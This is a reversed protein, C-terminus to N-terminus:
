IGGKFFRFALQILLIITVTKLLLRIYLYNLKKAVRVALQAGVIAGSALSLAVQWDILDSVFFVSFAALCSIFTQFRTFTISKLYSFGNYLYTFLLLTAQGPGFMGDYVSIGFLYPYLKSFLSNKETIPKKILNLIFAFSLLFIALVTFIKETLIQAILAGTMGGLLAVPVINYMEKLRVEKQKVLIFVSSFSSVTNSFKNAAIITHIPLGYLLMAPMGILGGGGALTGLFSVSIGIVFLIWDIRFM